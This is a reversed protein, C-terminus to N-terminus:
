FIVVSNILLIIPFTQWWCGGRTFKTVQQCVLVAGGDGDQLFFEMWPELLVEIVGERDQLRLGLCEFKDIGNEAFVCTLWDGGREKM